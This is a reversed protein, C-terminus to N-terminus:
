QEFWKGDRQIYTKGGITKPQNISQGTPINEEQVLGMEVLVQEPDVNARRALGTYSDVRQKHQGKAKNFLKEARDVFDARQRPPLREGSMVKNYVNWIRDSVAGSSQATAFEGERVTSGPDLVKMYNFILALDGAASPDQASAEIRGYADRQKIYEGSLNTFEKRLKTERDFIEKPELNGGKLKQDFEKVTQNFKKEDLRFKQRDLKAQRDQQATPVVDKFEQGGRVLENLLEDMSPDYQEPMEEETEYGASIMNQRYRSYAGQKDESSLVNFAGEAHAMTEQETAAQAQEVRKGLVGGAATIDGMPVGATALAGERGGLYGGLATQAQQAQQAKARAAQEELVGKRLGQGTKLGGLVAKGLDPRYSRAAVDYGQDYYAM